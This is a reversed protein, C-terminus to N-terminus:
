IKFLNLKHIIFKTKLMILLHEMPLMLNIVLKFWM